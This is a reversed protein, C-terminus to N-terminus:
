RYSRLPRISRAKIRNSREGEYGRHILSYTALIFVREVETKTNRYVANRIPLFLLFLLLYLLSFHKEFIYGILPNAYTQFFPFLYAALYTCVRNGKRWENMFNARQVILYFRSEVRFYYVTLTQTPIPLNTCRPVILDPWGLHYIPGDLPESRYKTARRQPTRMSSIRKCPSLEYRDFILRVAAAVNLKGPLRFSIRIDSMNRFNSLLDPRLSRLTLRHCNDREVIDCARVCTYM